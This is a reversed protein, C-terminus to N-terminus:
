LGGLKSKGMLSGLRGCREDVGNVGLVFVKGWNVVIFFFHSFAYYCYAYCMVLVVAEM